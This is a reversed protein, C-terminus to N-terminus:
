MSDLNEGSLHSAVFGEPLVEKGDADKLPLPYVAAQMQAPSAQYRGLPPASASEASHDDADAATPGDLTQTTDENGHSSHTSNGIAEDEDDRKRKKFTAATKTDLTCLARSTQVAFFATAIDGPMSKLEFCFNM